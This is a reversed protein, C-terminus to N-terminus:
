LASAGDMREIVKVRPINTTETGDLDLKGSEPQLTAHAAWIEQECIAKIEAVTEAQHKAINLPGRRRKRKGLYETVPASVHVEKPNLNRLIWKLTARFTEHSLGTGDHTWMYTTHITRKFETSVFKYEKDLAKALLLYNDEASRPEEEGSPLDSTLRGALRLPAIELIAKSYFITSCDVYTSRCVFLLSPM